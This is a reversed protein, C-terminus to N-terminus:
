TKINPPGRPGSGGTIPKYLSEPGDTPLSRDDNLLSDMPDSLNERDCAAEKSEVVMAHSGDADSEQIKLKPGEFAVLRAQHSHPGMDRDQRHQRVTHRRILDGWDAYLYVRHAARMIQCMFRDSGESYVIVTGNEHAFAKIKNVVVPILRADDEYLSPDHEVFLYTADCGGIIASVQDGTFGRRVSFGTVTRSLEPLIRSFNSCVFLLPYRRITGKSRDLGDIVVRRPGTIVTIMREPILIDPQWELDMHRAITM